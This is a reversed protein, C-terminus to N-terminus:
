SALAMAGKSLAYTTSVRVVTAFTLLMSAADMASNKWMSVMARLLLFQMGQAYVTDEHAGVLGGDLGALILEGDGAEDLGDGEGLGEGVDDEAGQGFGLGDEGAVGAVLARQDREEAGHQGLFALLHAEVAERLFFHRGGRREQRQSRGAEGEGRDLHEDHGAGTGLREGGHVQGGEAGQGHEGRGLRLVHRQLEGHGAGDAGEVVGDDVEGPRVQRHRDGDGAHAGHGSLAGEAGTERERGAKRISQGNRSQDLPRTLSELTIVGNRRSSHISRTENLDVSPPDM